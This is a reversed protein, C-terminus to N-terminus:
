SKEGVQSKESQYRHSQRQGMRNCVVENHCLNYSNSITFTCNECKRKAVLRADAEARKRKRELNEM